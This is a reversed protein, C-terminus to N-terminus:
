TVNFTWVEFQAKSKKECRLLTAEVDEWQLGGIGCGLRPIAVVDVGEADAFALVGEAASRVWALRAYPGPHDQTAMNAVWRGEGVQYMMASGPELDDMECMERYTRYMEPYRQRFVVAIGAGMVGRTNVGHGIMAATSTFLDGTQHIM